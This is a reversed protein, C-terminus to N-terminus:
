RSITWKEFRACDSLIEREVRAHHSLVVNPGIHAHKCHCSADVYIPPTFAVDDISHDDASPHIIRAGPLLIPHALIASQADLYSNPTGIDAFFREDYIAHIRKGSAMMQPYIETVLCTYRNPDIPDLVQRQVIHIGTFCRAEHAANPDIQDDPICWDRIRVIQRQCTEILGLPSNEPRPAVVLSVDCQSRRHEDLAISLDAGSLVDGHYIVFQDCDPLLKACAAAGGATGAITTGERYCVPEDTGIEACVQRLCQEMTDPLHCLNAAIRRIGARYLARVAYWVMPKGLFPIAPKPIEHTIPQLRTGFGACLVIGGIRQSNM